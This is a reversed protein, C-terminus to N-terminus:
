KPPKKNKNTLFAGVIGIVTTGGIVLAVDTKDIIALYFSGLICLLVIIFAFVLSLKQTSIERQHATDAQLIELRQVEIEKEKPFIITPKFTGMSDHEHSNM